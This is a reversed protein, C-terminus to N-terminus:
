RVRRIQLHWDDVLKRAAQPARLAVIWEHNVEFARRTWNASGIVLIDQDIVAAKAHLREGASRYLHVDAGDQLLRRQAVARDPQRPDLLVHVGVGRRAAEGLAALLSEDNFDFMEVYISSRAESILALLLNRAPKGSYTWSGAEDRHGIRGSWDRDLHSKSEQCVPHQPDGIWLAFDHNAWSGPGWNVSGIVCGGDTVLIKAHDIGGSVEAKRLQVGTGKLLQAAQRSHPESADVIVRVSVGRAAAEALATVVAPDGLEYMEVDVSGKAGHIARIVVDRLQEGPLLQPPSGQTGCGPLLFLIMLGVLAAVLFRPLRVPPLRRSRRLFLERNM